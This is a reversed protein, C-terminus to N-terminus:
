SSYYSATIKPLTVATICLVACTALVLAVRTVPSSPCLAVSSRSVFVLCQHTVTRVSWPCASDHAGETLARGPEWDAGRAADEHPLLAPSTEATETVLARVGNM